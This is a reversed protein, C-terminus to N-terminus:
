VSPLPGSPDMQLGHTFIRRTTAVRWSVFMVV